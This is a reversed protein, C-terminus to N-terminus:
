IAIITILKYGIDFVNNLEDIKANFSQVSNDKAPFYQEIDKVSKNFSSKLFKPIEILFAM